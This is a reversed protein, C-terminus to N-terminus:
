TRKSNKFNKKQDLRKTHDVSGSFCVLFGVITDKNRSKSPKIQLLSEFMKKKDLNFVHRMTWGTLNQNNVRSLRMALMKEVLIGTKEL